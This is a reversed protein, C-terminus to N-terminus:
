PENKWSTCINQMNGRSNQPGLPDQSLMRGLPRQISLKWSTSNTADLQEPRRSPWGIIISLWWLWRSTSTRGQILLKPERMPRPKKLRKSLCCPRSIGFPENDKSTLLGKVSLMHTAALNADEQLEVLDVTPSGSHSSCAAMSPYIDIPNNKLSTDMEGMSAQSSTDLSPAPAEEKTPPPLDAETTAEEGMASHESEIIIM